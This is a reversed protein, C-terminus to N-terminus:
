GGARDGIERRLTLAQQFYDLAVVYEGLSAYILGINNLTTGEEARDGIERFITLAQEYYNLAAAYEGLHYYIV